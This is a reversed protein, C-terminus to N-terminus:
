GQLRSDSLSLAAELRRPRFKGSAKTFFSGPAQPVQPWEPLSLGALLISAAGGWGHGSSLFWTSLFILHERFIKGLTLFHSSPVHQEGRVGPIPGGGPSGARGRASGLM